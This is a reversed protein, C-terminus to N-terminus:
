YSRSGAITLSSSRRWTATIAAMLVGEASAAFVAVVIIGITKPASRATRRYRKITFTPNLALGSSVASRAEYVRGLLALAAALHFHAVPINRHAEVARLRFLFGACEMMM